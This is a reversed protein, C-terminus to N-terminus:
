SNLPAEALGDIATILLRPPQVKPVTRFPQIYAKHFPLHGAVLQDFIPQVALAAQENETESGFKQIQFGLSAFACTFCVSSSPFTIRAESERNPSM